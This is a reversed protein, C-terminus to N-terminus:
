KQYVFMSGLRTMNFLKTFRAVSEVQGLFLFAGPNMRGHINELVKRGSTQNFYILVNRLFVLDYNGLLAVSDPDYLNVCHFNVMDRITASVTCFDRDEKFYRDRYVGPTDRLSRTFYRAARAKALVRRSIDAGDVTLSWTSFDDLMERMIIALTYAEDGSSCGASLISLRKNGKKQKEIVPLVKEVLFELQPYERFFYTEHNVILLILQEMERKTVDFTLYRLYDKVTLIDLEKMRSSLRRALFDVKNKNIYIGTESYILTAFKEFEHTSLHM